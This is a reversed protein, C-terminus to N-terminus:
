KIWVGNDKLTDICSALNSLLRFSFLSAAACRSFTGYSNKMEAAKKMTKGTRLLNFPYM